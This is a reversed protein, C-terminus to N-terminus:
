FSVLVISGNVETEKWVDSPMCRLLPVITWFSNWLANSASEYFVRSIRAVVALAALDQCGHKDYLDSPAIEDCIIALIEPISLCVHM